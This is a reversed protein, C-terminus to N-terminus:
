KQAAPLYSSSPVYACDRFKIHEIVAFLAVEGDPGGASWGASSFVFRVTEKPPIVPGRWMLWRAGFGSRNHNQIRFLIAGGVEHVPQDSRNRLTLAYEGGERIQYSSGAVIVAVKSLDVATIEVASDSQPVVTLRAVLDPPGDIKPPASIGDKLSVGCPVPPTVVQAGTVVVVAVALMLALAFRM